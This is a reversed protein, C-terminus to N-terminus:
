SKRGSVVARCNTDLKSRGLIWYRMSAFACGRCCSSDSSRVSCGPSAPMTKQRDRADTSLRSLKEDLVTNGCKRIVGPEIGPNTRAVLTPEESLLPHDHDCGDRQTHVDILRIHTENGMEVQRLAYLAVVLLSPTRATVTQGRCRPERVSQM